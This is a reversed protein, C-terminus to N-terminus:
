RRTQPDMARLGLFKWEQGPRTQPDLARLGLFKWEQGADPRPIWLEQGCQLGGHERGQLFAPGSSINQLQEDSWNSHPPGAAVEEAPAEAKLATAQAVAAEYSPPEDMAAKGDEDEDERVDPADEKKVDEVVEEEVTEPVEEVAPTYPPPEVDDEVPGDYLPLPEFPPKPVYGRKVTIGSGDLFPLWMLGAAKFQKQRDFIRTFINDAGHTEEKILNDVFRMLSLGQREMVELDELALQRGFNYFADYITRKDRKETVGLFDVEPIEAVFPEATYDEMSEFFYTVETAYMKEFTTSDPIRMKTVRSPEAWDEQKYLIVPPAPRRTPHCM